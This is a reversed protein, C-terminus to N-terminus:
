SARSEIFMTVGRVVAISLIVMGIAIFVGSVGLADALTGSLLIPLLSFLGTISFILGYMKSRSEDPVQEQIITQTPVFIFTNAFGACFALFSALMNRILFIRIYGVLPFFIFVFGSIIIGLLPLMNREIRKVLRGIFLSSVIMGLAAPGFLVLSVYEEKIQLVTKAYGPTLSAVTFIVVQSLVIFFVSILINNGGFAIHYAKKFEKKLYTILLGKYSVTPNQALVNPILFICLATIIFLGSVLFFVNTAGLLISLPGGLVYAILISGFLAIGLLSNASTLYEKKVLQPVLPIEAPIYFNTVIAVAFSISYILMLSKPNFFLLLILFARLINGYILISKRNRMDAVIGGVLSVFIQPVVFTIVLLSVSLNSNTLGFVLFILVITLLNIAISSIFVSAIFLLYPPYSVLYVLEPSLINAFVKSMKFPM